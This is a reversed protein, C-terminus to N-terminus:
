GVPAMQCHHGVKLTGDEWPLASEIGCVPEAIFYSGPDVGEDVGATPDFGM